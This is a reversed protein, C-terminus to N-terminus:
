MRRPLSSKEVAAPLRKSMEITRTSTRRGAWPQIPVGSFLNGMVVLTLGTTLHHVGLLRVGSPPLQWFFDIYLDSWAKVGKRAHIALKTNQKEQRGRQRNSIGDDVRRAQTAEDGLVALTSGRYIRSRPLLRSSSGSPRAANM